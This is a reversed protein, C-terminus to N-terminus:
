LYDCAILSSLCLFVGIALISIAFLIDLTLSPQYADHGIQKEVKKYRIFALVGMIAGLGVLLVGLLSSYGPPPPLSVTRQQAQKNWFTDPQKLFFAFREVVFGFVM